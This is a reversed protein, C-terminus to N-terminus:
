KELELIVEVAREGTKDNFWDSNKREKVVLLNDVDIRNESVLEVFNRSYEEGEFRMAFAKSGNAKLPYFRIPRPAWESDLGKVRDVVDMMEGRFYNEEWPFEILTRVNLSGAYPYFGLMHEIEKMRRNEAYAFAEHAGGGGKEYFGLIQARYDPHATFKWVERHPEHIAPGIREFSFYEGAAELINDLTYGSLLKKPVNARVVPDFTNVPNEWLLVGGPKMQRKFWYWLAKHDGACAYAHHYMSFCYAVDFKGVDEYQKGIELKKFEAKDEWGHVRAREKNASILDVFGVDRVVRNRDIGTVQKAGELISFWVWFGFDCGIDLVSKDRLEPFPIAELKSRMRDGISAFGDKNLDFLQYDSM